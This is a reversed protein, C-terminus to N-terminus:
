KPIAEDKNQECGLWSADSDGTSSLHIDHLFLPMNEVGDPEPPDLPFRSLCDANKHLSGNRHEIEMNVSGLVM